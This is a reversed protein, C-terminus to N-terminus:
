SGGTGFWAANMHRQFDAETMLTDSITDRIVRIQQETTGAPVSVHVTNEITPHYNISKNMQSPAASTTYIYENLDEASYYPRPVELAADWFRKWAEGSLPNKMVEWLAYVAEAVETIVRKANDRWDYWPGLWDGIVSADGRMWRYVDEIALGIAAILLLWPAAAVIFGGIAAVVGGISTGLLGLGLSLAKIGIAFMGIQGVFAMLPGVLALLAVFGITVTRLWKPMSKILDVFKQLANIVFTLVEKLRLEEVIMQGIEKRVSFLVGLLQSWLGGLTEAQRSMLGKRESAILELAAVVQDYTSGSVEAKGTVRQLADIIPIGAESMPRIDQFDIKKKTYVQYLQQMLTGMAGAEGAAAEGYTMLKKAIEEPATKMMVMYNAYGLTQEFNFPTKRDFQLLDNFLSKAKHADKLMVEFKTLTKEVQAATIASATGLGIIPVTLGATLGLGINRVGRAIDSLGSFTEHTLQKVATLEQNLRRLADYEIDFGVTAVLERLKM